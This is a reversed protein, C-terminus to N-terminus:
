EGGGVFLREACTRPDVLIVQVQDLRNAGGSASAVVYALMPQTDYVVSEVHAVLGAQEAGDLCTAPAVGSRFPPAAVIARRADDALEPVRDVPTGLLGKAEPSDVLHAQVAAENALPTEADIIAPRPASLAPLQVIGRDDGGGEIQADLPAQLAEPVPERGVEMGGRGVIGGLLGLLIAAAAVSGVTRWRRRRPGQDALQVVEAPADRAEALRARLREAYGSPPIVEDLGRLTVLVDSVADLAAALTPDHTLRAELEAVEAPDLEGNLYASLRRDDRPDPDSM